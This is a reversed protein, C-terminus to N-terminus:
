SKNKLVFVQYGYQGLYQEHIQLEKRLDTLANSIFDEGEVQTIKRQLPELYNRWSQDSQTFSDIVEYGAKVMEKIRQESTAMEPYNQQWFEVAEADPNDTLWVLDSLILYGDSKLFPKWDKLAQKVGMIYASGESWLVDFQGRAFPMAMMSACTTTIRHELSNEKAKKKLCSLGYEDNDLATLNFASNKSLLTTTLGKGCGIELVDGSRIPLSSLAKLSDGDDGPGLRDLGLFIAEFDAMYQEHENMDKSLWKLRLAQKESFGQKMLWELHASPAEKEMSQHWEKMSNMGLMSSLLERAKQKQAIEEDLVNLRHLLLERDIQAKLCAQCEKLTLGGAQLQQLLKVRQVDKDTYCRYGNSQRIASILKLKEYYLLTSRSLGVKQALESIRYM